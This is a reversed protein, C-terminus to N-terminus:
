REEKPTHGFISLPSATTPIAALRSCPTPIGSVTSMTYCMKRGKKHAQAQQTLPSVVERGTDAFASAGFAFAIAVAVCRISWGSGRSLRIKMAPNHLKKAAFVVIFQLRFAISSVPESKIAGSSISWACGSSARKRKM